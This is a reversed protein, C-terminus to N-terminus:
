EGIVVKAYRIIKDGLYYGPEIEDVVKGKQEEEQAPIKTVAEMTEVNFEKGKTHEMPKLGKQMLTNEFKHYILEVGEKAKDDEITQLARQFDDLVPLLAEMLERNASSFLEAREKATRKKYNEFDAYLRLHKENIKKVEDELEQVRNEEQDEAQEETSQVEEQNETSNEQTTEENDINQENNQELDKEEVSNDKSM